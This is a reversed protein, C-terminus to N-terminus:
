FCHSGLLVGVLEEILLEGFALIVLDDPIESIMSRIQKESWKADEIGRERKRWSANRAHKAAAPEEREAADKKVELKEDSEEHEEEPDGFNSIASENVSNM